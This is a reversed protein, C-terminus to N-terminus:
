WSKDRINDGDHKKSKNELFDFINQRKDKKKEM